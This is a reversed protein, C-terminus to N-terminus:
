FFRFVEEHIAEALEEMSLNVFSLQRKLGEPRADFPDHQPQVRSSELLVNYLYTYIRPLSLRFLLWLFCLSSNNAGSNETTRACKRCICSGCSTLNSLWRLSTAAIVTTRKTKSSNRRESREEEQVRCGPQQEPKGVYKDEENADGVHFALGDLGRDARNAHFAGVPFQSWPFRASNWLETLDM